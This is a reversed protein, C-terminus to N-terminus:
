KENIASFETTKQQRVDQKDSGFAPIFKSKASEIKRDIQDLLDNMNSKNVSGVKETKEATKEAEKAKIKEQIEREKELEM